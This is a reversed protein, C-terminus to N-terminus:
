RRNWESAQCAEQVTPDQRCAEKVVPDRVCEKAMQPNEQAWQVLRLRTDGPKLLAEYVEQRFLLNLGSQVPVQVKRRWEEVLEKFRGVTSVVGAFFLFSFVVLKLIASWGRLDSEQMLFKVLYIVLSAAMAYCIMTNWKQRHQPILTQLVLMALAGPIGGCGYSVSQPTVTTSGLITQLIRSYLLSYLLISFFSDVIFVAGKQVRGHLAWVFKKTPPIFRWVLYATSLIIPAPFFKVWFTRGSVICDNQLDLSSGCFIGIVEGLTFSFVVLGEPLILTRVWGSDEPHVLYRGVAFGFGGAVAAPISFYPLAETRVEVPLFRSAEGLFLHTSMGFLFSLIAPNMHILRAIIESHSCVRIIEREERNPDSVEEDRDGVRVTRDSRGSRSSWIITEPAPPVDDNDQVVSARGGGAILSGNEEGGGGQADSGQDGHLM